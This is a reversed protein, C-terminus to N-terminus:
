ATHRLEKASALYMPIYVYVCIENSSYTTTLHFIINMIIVFEVLTYKTTQVDEITKSCVEIISYFTCHM